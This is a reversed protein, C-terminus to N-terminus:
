DTIWKIFKAPVGGVVANEPVDKNVVAGAAIVANDGFIDLLRTYLDYKWGDGSQTAIDAGNVEIGINWVEAVTDAGELVARYPVGAVPIYYTM